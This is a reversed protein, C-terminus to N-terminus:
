LGVVDCLDGFEQIPDVIELLLDFSQGFVFIITVVVFLLGDGEVCVMIGDCSGVCRGVLLFCVIRKPAHLVDISIGSQVGLGTGVFRIAVEAKGMVGKSFEVVLGSFVKPVVSLALSLVAVLIACM